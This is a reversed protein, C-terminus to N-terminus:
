SVPVVGTPQEQSNPRRSTQVLGDRWMFLSQRTDALGYRERKIILRILEMPILDLKTSIEYGTLVLAEGNPGIRQEPTAPIIVEVPRLESSIPNRGHGKYGPKRRGKKRQYTITETEAPSAPAAAETQVPLGLLSGEEPQDTPKTKESSPGYLARLAQQLKLELEAKEGELAAIREDKTALEQAQAVVLAELRDRPIDAADDATM